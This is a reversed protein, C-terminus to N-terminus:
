SNKIIKIKIEIFEKKNEYGHICLFSVQAIDKTKEEDDDDDDIHVDVGVDGIIMM